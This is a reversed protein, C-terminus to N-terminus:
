VLGAKKMEKLVFDPKLNKMCDHTGLPCARKMCPMCPLDLRAILSRPAHYPSTEDARTPGFLAVLPVGFAAAIHMPGSDNTVFLDLNSIARALEEISTKGCLNLARVGRAGLEREIQECIDSESRGGFIVIEHTDELAAGIQAFYQPYWRKASGYSAGPNLGLVKKGSEFKFIDEGGGQLYLKQEANKPKLSLADTIFDLYKRVQHGLYRGRPFAAKIRAKTAALFVLTAFHSRFSVAADFRGLKRAELALWLLRFRSKKSNDVLIKECNPHAAFLRAGAEAGFFVIKVHPHNRALNEVAASAMVCDGLWTPLEILVRM